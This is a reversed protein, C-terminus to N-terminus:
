LCSAGHRFTLCPEIIPRIIVKHTSVHQWKLQRYILQKKTQFKSKSYKLSFVDPHCWNFLFRQSGVERLREAASGVDMTAEVYDTSGLM